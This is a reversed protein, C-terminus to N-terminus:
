SADAQRVVQISKQIALRNQGSPSGNQFPHDLAARFRGTVVIRKRTPSTAAPITTSSTPALCALARTRSWLSFSLTMPDTFFAVRASSLATVASLSSRQSSTWIIAERTNAPIASSVSSRIAGTRSRASSRWASAARESASSDSISCARLPKRRKTSKRSSAGNRSLTRNTSPRSFESSAVHLAARGAKTDKSFCLFPVLPGQRRQRGCKRPLLLELDLGPKVLEQQDQGVGHRAGRPGRGLFPGFLREADDISGRTQARRRGSGMVQAPRHVQLGLAILILGGPFTGFGLPHRWGVREVQEQESAFRDALFVPRVRDGREFDAVWPGCSIKQRM